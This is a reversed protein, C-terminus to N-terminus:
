RKSRPTRARQHDHRLDRPHADVASRGSVESARSTRCRVDLLIVDRPEAIVPRSGRCRHRGGRGRTRPAPFSQRVQGPMLAPDDDILLLHAM